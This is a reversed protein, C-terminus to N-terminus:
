DRYGNEARMTARDEAENQLRQGEYELWAEYEVKQTETLHEEDVIPIVNKGHCVDCVQDYMGGRRFYQEQEEDDFSDAFAETSYAHGRMGECLVFGDGQCEYCVENVSPFTSEVEDGNDDYWKLTIM